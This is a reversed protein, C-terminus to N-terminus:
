VWGWLKRNLGQDFINSLALPLHFKIRQLFYNFSSGYGVLSNIDFGHYYSVEINTQFLEKLLDYLATESNEREEYKKTNMCEIASELIEELGNKQLLCDMLINM